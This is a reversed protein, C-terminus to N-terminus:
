RFLRTLINGRHMALCNHWSPRSKAFFLKGAFKSRFNPALLMEYPGLHFEIEKMVVTGTDEQTVVVMETDDDATKFNAELTKQQMCSVTLCNNMLHQAYAVEYISLMEQLEYLIEASVQTGFKSIKIVLDDGMKVSRDTERSSTSSFINKTM